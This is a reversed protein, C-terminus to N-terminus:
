MLRNLEIQFACLLLNDRPYQIHISFCGIAEDLLMVIPFM